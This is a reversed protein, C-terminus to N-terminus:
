HGCFIEYGHILFATSKVIRDRFEPRDKVESCYQILEEYVVNPNHNLLAKRMEESDTINKCYEVQWQAGLCSQNLLADKVEDDSGIEALYKYQYEAAFSGCRRCLDKKYRDHDPKGVTEKCKNFVQELEM